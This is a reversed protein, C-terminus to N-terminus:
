FRVFKLRCLFTRGDVVLPFIPLTPTEACRGALVGGPPEAANCQRRLFIPDCIRNEAKQM